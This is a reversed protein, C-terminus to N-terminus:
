KKASLKISIEQHLDRITRESREIKRRHDNVIYVLYIIATTQVIDFLSLESSDLISKGIVYNYIPFSSLLVVLIVLWLVLQFRFRKRDVKKMKYQTVINILALLIIPVNLLVLILYRM